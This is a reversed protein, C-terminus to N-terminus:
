ESDYDTVLLVVEHAKAEADIVHIVEKVKYGKPTPGEKVELKDGVRPVTVLKFRKPQIIEIERGHLRISAKIDSM